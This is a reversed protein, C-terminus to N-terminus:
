LIYTWSCGSVAAAFVSTILTRGFGVHAEFRSVYIRVHMGFVGKRGAKREIILSRSRFSGGWDGFRSRKKMRMLKGKLGVNM